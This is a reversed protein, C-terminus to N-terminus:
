RGQIHWCFIGYIDFDGVGGGVRGSQRFHPAQPPGFGAGLGAIAEIHQHNQHVIVFILMVRDSRWVREISACWVMQTNLAM